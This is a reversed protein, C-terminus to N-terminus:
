EEETPLDIRKKVPEIVNEDTCSSGRRVFLRETEPGIVFILADETGCGVCNYSTTDKASLSRFVVRRFNPCTINDIGLIEMYEEPDIGEPFKAGFYSM